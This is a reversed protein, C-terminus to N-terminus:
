KYAPKENEIRRWANMNGFHGQHSQAQNSFKRSNYISFSSLAKNKFARAKATLSTALRWGIVQSIDDLTGEAIFNHTYTRKAKLNSTSTVYAM